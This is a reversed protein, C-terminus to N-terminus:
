IRKDISLNKNMKEMVNKFETDLPVKGRRSRLM